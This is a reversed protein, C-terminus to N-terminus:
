RRLSAVIGSEKAEVTSRKRGPHGQPRKELGYLLDKAEQSLYGQGTGDQLEILKLEIDRLNQEDKQQKVKAWKKTAQKLGKLNEFFHVATPTQSHEPIKVWLEKVLEMFSPNTLWVEFFKFPSTMRRSSTGFEFLIPHHDSEGGFTVWQRVLASSDLLDDTLLFRDLRKAVRDSGVRRNCWTPTLKQPEVDVLGWQDLFKLFYNKLPDPAARPGWVESAGLSFNLDGGLIFYKRKFWDCDTLSNWYLQRDQHPWLHKHSTLNRGL